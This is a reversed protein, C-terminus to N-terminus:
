SLYVPTNGSARYYDSIIGGLVKRRQVTGTNVPQNRPIPTQQRIGQHPRAVNYYDNIYVQLVRRLHAVNLILILDLCETRVTRVWREAYANANPARYPTLIINIGESKFIADFVKTFKKDRDHILFRFTTESEELEWVLQRAQQTVWFAHPNATIGPLYVRRTGLDIFFLVYLTQLWLTEITFFDCALIQTKYHTMLHRWSISGGRVPAPVINYRELVNRITTVSVQFGLKLLEGEIKGYGWRPNERALRVILREIEKGLKPRGSKHKRKFTWKRRVLERHWRLVTQPQFIRIIGHLERATRNTTQKLRTALVALTLKEARTLRVPKYCKRELISLQHRLLLIELDKEQESLRGIHMFMLMTSFIHALIFWGM